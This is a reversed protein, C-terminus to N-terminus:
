LEQLLTAMDKEEEEEEESSVDYVDYNFVITTQGEGEEEGEGEIWKQPIEDMDALRKAEDIFFKYIVDAKDDQYDRLGVLIIDNCKIWIRKKMKGRIIAFKKGGKKKKPM